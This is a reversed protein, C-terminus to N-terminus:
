GRGVLRPAFGPAVVGAEPAIEDEPHPIYPGIRGLDSDAYAADPLGAFEWWEGSWSAIDWEGLFVVWYYGPKRLSTMGSEYEFNHMHVFGVKPQTVPPHQM